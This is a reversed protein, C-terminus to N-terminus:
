PSKEPGSSDPSEGNMNVRARTNNKILYLPRNKTENYIRGLYEGLIGIFFIQIGGLFLVSILLSPYGKVQEGWWLTKIIVWIGILFSLFSISFGLYTAIKLPGITFSTIGELAFNWLRWYSFKSNGAVRPQRRYYIAKTPFGIWAFLGKMFRHQERLKLLADVARRSLLRYDGTDTPISIDSIRSIIKYFYKATIKKLWSEADRHTRKAYVVDFGNKWEAIFEHILSPPDQLDADIIIVASGQAHDLGATMAIEKGFNRSLDVSGVRPDTAALAEIMLQTKDTSGDNIFLIEFQFDAAIAIEQSMAAHFAHLVLEENYAPVVISILPKMNDVRTKCLWVQM